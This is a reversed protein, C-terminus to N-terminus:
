KSSRVATDPPKVEYIEDKGLELLIMECKGFVEKLCEIYSEMNLKESVAVLWELIREVKEDYFFYFRIQEHDVIDRIQVTIMNLPAHFEAELKTSSYNITRKGEPCLNEGAEIRKETEELDDWGHAELILNFLNLDRTQTDNLDVLHM